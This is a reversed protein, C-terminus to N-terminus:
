DTTPERQYSIPLITIVKQGDVQRVLDIVVYQGSIQLEKILRNPIVVHHSNGTRGIKRIYM